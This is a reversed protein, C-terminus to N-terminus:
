LTTKGLFYNEKGDDEIPLYFKAIIEDFIYDKM